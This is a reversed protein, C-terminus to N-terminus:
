LGCQSGVPLVPVCFTDNERKHILTLGEFFERSVDLEAANCAVELAASFAEAVDPNAQIHLRLKNIAYQIEDDTM